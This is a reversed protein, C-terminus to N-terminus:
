LSEKFSVCYNYLRRGTAISILGDDDRLQGREGNGAAQAASGSTGNKYAYAIIPNLGVGTLSIKVTNKSTIEVSTIANGLDDNYEFGYNAVPNIETSEFSLSGGLSIHTGKFEIFLDNGSFYFLEPSLPQWKEGTNLQYSIAQGDKEGLEQQSENNIHSQDVYTYQYKPQTLTILANTEHAKLQLIPTQFNTNAIGGIQGYGCASNTQSLFVPIDEPQSSIAKLDTNFDSQWETLNQDYINNNDIGDQEGHIINVFGFAMTGFRNADNLKQANSICKEYVGTAGGKKIESYAKGGWAQGTFLCTKAVGNSTLSNSLTTATTCRNDSEQMKSLRVGLTQTELGVPRGILKYCSSSIPNMNFKTNGVGGEALSQGTQVGAIVDYNFGAALNRAELIQSSNPNILSSSLLKSDVAVDIDSEGFSKRWSINNDSPNLATDQLATFYNGTPTGGSQTQWVEGKLASGGTDPWLGKYGGGLAAAEAAAASGAANVESQEVGAIATNMEDITSNLDPSFGKLYRFQDFANQTFEAQTQSGYPDAVNGTYETVKKIAM